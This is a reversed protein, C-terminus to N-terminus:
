GRRACCWVVITKAGAEKLITCFEQITSGTTVVDDLVAVSLGSYERNLEFAHKINNQREEANLGSQALTSKCRTPSIDLHIKLKKALPRAIELAQNFGRERYRKAHLPVPILLDPLSNTAYWHHQIHEHMLEALAHAHWLRGVFKLQKIMHIAQKQYPFLAYIRSYAPQNQLCVACQQLYDHPLFRACQPCHHPLIPLEQQCAFCINHKRRSLCGCLVCSRPLVLEYIADLFTPILKKLLM